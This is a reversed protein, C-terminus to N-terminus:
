CRGQRIGRMASCSGHVSFRTLNVVQRDVDAQAFDTNVTADLVTNANVAWKLDGGVKASQTTSPAASSLVAREERNSSAVLYPNVRLNTKPPPPTLSDLAGAYIM